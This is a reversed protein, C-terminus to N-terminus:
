GGEGVCTSAGGGFAGRTHRSRHANEEHMGIQSARHRTQVVRCPPVLAPPHHPPHTACVCVEMQLGLTGADAQGSWQCTGKGYWWTNAVLVHRQSTHACVAVNGKLSDCECLRGGVTLSGSALVECRMHSLM